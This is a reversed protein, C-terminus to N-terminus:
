FFPDNKSQFSCQRPITMSIPFYVTMHLSVSCVFINRIFDSKLHQFRMHVFDPEREKYFLVVVVPTRTHVHQDRGQAPHM